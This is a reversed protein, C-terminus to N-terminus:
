AKPTSGTQLHKKGATSIQYHFLKTQPHKKGRKVLKHKLLAELTKHEPKKDTHYGDPDTHASVRELMAKQSDTLKPRAAKKPAATKKPSGKAAAKKPAPKDKAKTAGATKNMAM